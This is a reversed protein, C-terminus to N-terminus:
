APNPFGRCRSRPVFTFASLRNFFCSKLQYYGNPRTPSNTDLHDVPLLSTRNTYLPKWSTLNTSSLLVVAQTASGSIRFNAPHVFADLALGLPSQASVTAIANVATGVLNSVVVSYSGVQNFQISSVSFAANTAGAIDAGNCRWQYAPSTVYNSVGANLLLGSGGALILNQAPGVANPPVGMRWNLNNNGQAGNKGDVAVLYNTGALAPFKVLSRVGDPAGNDDSAILVLSFYDSGTTSGSFVLSRNM